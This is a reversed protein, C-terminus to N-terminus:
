GARLIIEILEFCEFIGLLYRDFVFCAINESHLEVAAAIAVTNNSTLDSSEMFHGLQWFFM